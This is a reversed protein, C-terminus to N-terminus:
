FACVGPVDLFICFIYPDSTFTKCVTKRVLDEEYHEVIDSSINAQGTCWGQRGGGCTLEEETSESARSRM